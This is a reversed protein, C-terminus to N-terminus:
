IDYYVKNNRVVGNVDKIEKIYYKSDYENRSSFTHIITTIYYKNNDINKVIIKYTHTWYNTWMYENYTEQYCDKNTSIIEIPIYGKNILLQKIDSDLFYIKFKNIINNISKCINEIL